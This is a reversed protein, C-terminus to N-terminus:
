TDDSIPILAKPIVNTLPLLRTGKGGAMIVVPLNISEQKNYRSESPFLQSWEIVDCLLGKSDVIPMAEIKKERMLSKIKERNDSEFAFTMKQRQFSSVPLSLDAKKLIARQIDGISIVGGFFGENCIILLKRNTQDMIKLSEILSIDSSIIINNDIM